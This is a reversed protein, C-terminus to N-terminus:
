WIPLCFEDEKSPIKANPGAVVFSVYQSKTYPHSSPFYSSSMRLGAQPNGHFGNLSMQCFDWSADGLRQPKALSHWRPRCNGQFKGTVRTPVCLSVHEGPIPVLLGLDPGWIGTRGGRQM